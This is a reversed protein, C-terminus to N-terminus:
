VANATSTGCEPCRGSINGTLDYGCRRCFGSGVRGRRLWLVATLILCPVFPVWLPIAVRRNDWGFGATHLYPPHWWMLRGMGCKGDRSRVYFTGGSTKQITQSELFGPSVIGGDVILYIERYPGGSSTWWRAWVVEGIVSFCFTVLILLCAILGGWQFARRSRIRSLMITCVIWKSVVSCLALCLSNVKDLCDLFNFTNKRFVWIM